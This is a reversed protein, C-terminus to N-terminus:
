NNFKKAKRVDEFFKELKHINSEFELEKRAIEINEIFKKNDFKKLLPGLNKMQNKNVAVGLNYKKIISHIFVMDKSCIFPIGAEIFTALKNGSAAGIWEKKYVKFDPSSFWGGFDYKSIEKSIKSQSVHKYFHFYKNKLFFKHKKSHSILNYQRSYFHLHIKQNLIEKLGEWLDDAFTGLYVLHLEGDKKSLKNENLPVINEKLCYPLFQLVPTNTKIMDKVYKFEDGKFIIGDANEFCYKESKLEIKPTKDLIYNNNIDKYKLSIVDYPFYIFPIKKFIKKITASLFIPHGVVGIIVYPKLKRISNILKLLRFNSFLQKFTDYPYKFINLHNLNFNIVQNYGNYINKDFNGLISILVTEYGRGKLTKAMKFCMDTPTNGEFFIIQKKM